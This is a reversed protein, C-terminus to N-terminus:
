TRASGPSCGPPRVVLPWASDPWTRTRGGRQAEGLDVGTLEHHITKERCLSASTENVFETGNDTGFRKVGGGVDALFEKTASAVDSM